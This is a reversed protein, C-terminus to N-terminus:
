GSSPITRSSDTPSPEVKDTRESVVIVLAGLGIAAHVSNLARSLTLIPGLNVLGLFGLLALSIGLSAVTATYGRHHRRLMLGLLGVVIYLVAHGTESKLAPVTLNALGIVLVAGGFLQTFWKTM